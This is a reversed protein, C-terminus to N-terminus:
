DNLDNQNTLPDTNINHVNCSEKHTKITQIHTSRIHTLFSLICIKMMALNISAKDYSTCGM